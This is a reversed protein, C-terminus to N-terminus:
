CPVPVGPCNSAIHRAPMAHLSATQVSFVYGGLIAGVVTAILLLRRLAKM